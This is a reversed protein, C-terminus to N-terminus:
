TTNAPCFVSRHIKKMYRNTEKISYIAIATPIVCSENCALVFVYEKDDSEGSPVVALDLSAEEFISIAALKRTDSEVFPIAGPNPYAEDSASIVYKGAGSEAFYTGFPLCLAITLIFRIGIGFRFSNRM